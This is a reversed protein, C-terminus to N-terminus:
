EGEAAVPPARAVDEKSIKSADFKKAATLMKQITAAFDHENGKAFRLPNIRAIVFARLYPSVLGKAKLAEIATTVADDLELVVAAQQQRIPLAEAFSEGLFTTLTRRLVPNYAGGSFRPRAQYCLGHVLLAPDEFEFAYRSEEADPSSQALAEAMRIVELAREKLNHAKETNLALIQFAIKPDPLLLAVVTKVGLERLAALRHHGNPTQYHVEPAEASPPEVRAAIIPDLFAGIKTIATVLRGVHPKSLDRQYPTAAVKEIPLAVLLLPKGGFPERYAGIVAGGDAVVHARLPALAADGALSLEAPGLGVTRAAVKKRRPKKPKKLPAKPM